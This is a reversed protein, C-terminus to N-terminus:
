KLLGIIIKGYQNLQYRIGSNKGSFDGGDIGVESLWGNSFLEELITVDLVENYSTLVMEVDTFKTLFLLYDYFSKNIMHCLRLFTKSAIDGVCYLKFVKGILEAKEVKDSRDLILLIDNGLDRQKDSDKLAKEIQNSTRKPLSNYGYIFAALKRLYIYNSLEKGANFMSFILNIGPIEKPLGDKLFSDLAVESIEIGVDKFNRAIIKIKKRM